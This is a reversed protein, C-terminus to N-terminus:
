LISCYVMTCQLVIYYVKFHQLISYDPEWMAPLSTHLPKKIIYLYVM